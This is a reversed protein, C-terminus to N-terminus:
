EEEDYYKCSSDCWIENVDNEIEQLTMNEDIGFLLINMMYKDKEFHLEVEYGKYSKCENFNIFYKTRGKEDRFRKQYFKDMGKYLNPRQYEKYGNELLLKDMIM